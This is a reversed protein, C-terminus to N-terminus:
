QEPTQQRSLLFSVATGVLFSAVSFVITIGEGLGGPFLVFISGAVFGFAAGYTERPAKALLYRIFAAGVLLGTVAGLVFPLMVPINFDSVAQIATRHLGIVLLLFSGSIGPLILACASLLGASLLRGFLRPTLSTFVATGDTPNLMSMVIMAALALGAFIASPLSPLAAWRGASPPRRVKSYVMPMSGSIVGIFLWYTPIMYNEYLRTLVTSFIIIGAMGGIVLPLWFKWAGIIKKINPTIIEMLRDYINFVIAMTGASIGPIVATIGLSFGAIILKVFDVLAGFVTKKM